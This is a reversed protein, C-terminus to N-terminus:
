EQSTDRATEFGHFRLVEEVRELKQVADRIVEASQPGVESSTLLELLRTRVSTRGTSLDLAIEICDVMAILDSRLDSQTPVRQVVKTWSM